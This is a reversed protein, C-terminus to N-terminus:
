IAFRPSGALKKVHVAKGLHGGIAGCSLRIVPVDPPQHSWRSAKEVRGSEKIHHPSIRGSPNTLDM